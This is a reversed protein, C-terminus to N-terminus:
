VIEGGCSQCWVRQTSDQCTAAVLCAAGRKCKLTPLGLVRPEGLIDILRAALERERPALRALRPYCPSCLEGESIKTGCLLCRGRMADTHGDSM